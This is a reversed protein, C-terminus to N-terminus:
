GNESQAELADDVGEYECGCNFAQGGCAPCREVECSEVHLQGKVVACDHCPHEAAGWDNKESGYPIRAYVVGNIAYTKETQAAEILEPWGEMVKIGNYEVFKKEM